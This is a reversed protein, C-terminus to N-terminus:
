CSRWGRWCGCSSPYRISLNKMCIGVYGLGSRKRAFHRRAKENGSTQSLRRLCCPSAQAEGFTNGEWSCCAGVLLYVGALLVSGHAVRDSLLFINFCFLRIDCFGCWRMNGISGLSFAHGGLFILCLCFPDGGLEPLGGQAVHAIGAQAFVDGLVHQKPEPLQEVFQAGRHVSQRERHHAVFTQHPESFLWPGYPHLAVVHRFLGRDVGHGFQREGHEVLQRGRCCVMRRSRCMSPISIPSIAVKSWLSSAATLCFRLRPLFVSRSHIM